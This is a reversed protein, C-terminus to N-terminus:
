DYLEEPHDIYFTTAINVAIDYWYAKVKDTVEQPASDPTPYDSEDYGVESVGECWNAEILYNCEEHLLESMYFEVANDFIEPDAEDEPEYYTNNMYFNGM